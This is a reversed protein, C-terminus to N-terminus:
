PADITATQQTMNFAFGTFDFDGIPFGGGTTQASGLDLQTLSQAVNSDVYVLPGDAPPLHDLTFTFTLVTSQSEVLTTPSVSLNVAVM